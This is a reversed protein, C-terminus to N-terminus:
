TTRARGEDFRAVIKACGIADARRVAALFQKVRSADTSAFIFRAAPLRQHLIAFAAAILASKTVVTSPALEASARDLRAKLLADTRAMWDATQTVSHLVLPRRPREWGKEEFWTPEVACQAIFDAPFAVDARPGFVKGHSFGIAGALGQRQQERLWEITSWSADNAYAEHLLLLEVAERRLNRRSRAFSGTMFAPDFNAKVEWDVPEAVPAFSGCLGPVAPRIWRKIRRVMTKAYTHRPHPLGVKATVAIESRGAAGAGVICESTGVGYTPATDIHRIGAALVTQICREAVRRDVGGTLKATGFILQDILM